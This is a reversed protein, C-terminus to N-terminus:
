ALAQASTREPAAAEAVLYRHVLLLRQLAAEPVEAAQAGCNLSSTRSARRYEGPRQNLSSKFEM